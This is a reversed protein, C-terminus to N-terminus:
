SALCKIQERVIVIITFRIGFLRATTSIASMARVESVEARAVQTYLYGLSHLTALAYGAAQLVTKFAIYAQTVFLRSHYLLSLRAEARSAFTSPPISRPNERGARSSFVSPSRTVPYLPATSRANQFQRAHPLMPDGGYLNMEFVHPGGLRLDFLFDRYAGRARTIAPGARKFDLVPDAGLSRATALWNKPRLNLRYTATHM